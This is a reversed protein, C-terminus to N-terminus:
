CNTLLKRYLSFHFFHIVKQSIKTFDEFPQCFSSMEPLILDMANINLGCYAQVHPDCSKTGQIVLSFMCYASNEFNKLNVMWRKRLHFFLFAGHYKKFNERLSRGGGKKLVNRNM